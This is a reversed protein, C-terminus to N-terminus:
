SSPPKRGTGDAGGEKMCGYHEGQPQSIVQTACMNPLKGAWTERHLVTILVLTIFGFCQPSISITRGGPRYKLM